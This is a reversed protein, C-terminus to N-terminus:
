LRASTMLVAAAMPMASLSAVPGMVACARALSSPLCQVACASHNAVCLSVDKLAARASGFLSMRNIVRDLGLRGCPITMESASQVTYCPLIAAM